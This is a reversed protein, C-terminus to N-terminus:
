KERWNELSDTSQQDEADSEVAPLPVKGYHAHQNMDWM